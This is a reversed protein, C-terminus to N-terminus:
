WQICSAIKKSSSLTLDYAKLNDNITTELWQPIKFERKM